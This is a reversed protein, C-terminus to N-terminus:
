ERHIVTGDGMRIINEEKKIIVEKKLQEVEGKLSEIDYELHEWGKPILGTYFDLLHKLFLGYDNVFEEKAISRFMELTKNPIRQISLMVPRRNCTPCVGILKKLTEVSKNQEVM